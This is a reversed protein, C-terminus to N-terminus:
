ANLSTLFKSIRGIGREIDSRSCAYSLRLHGPGDFYTGPVTAVLAEDLLREAMEVDTQIQGGLYPEVNVFAYFAGKPFHTNLRPIQNLLGVALDRRAHFECRMAEIDDDPLNYASVAGIQVFSTANSTVQDQINSMAQVVEKPAAAFGVRWGTMAYSKSCGGITITQEAIDSGLSAISCHEEGYILKEYIEDAIVWFGHRIALAAIGKLVGRPIVAGTPNCPSNLMIAKTRSTIADRISECAPVFGTEQTTRVVVPTGGALRIQEAYTMWYPAIVIVEDGPDVLAQLSNYISHKAGCSIIVQEPSVRVGNDRKLKECVAAKLEPVGSTPVYKTFGQKIAEIAAQCVPDPTNFDPEGAGFSVIDKGEAKLKKARATIALTQSPGLLRVRESLSSVLM